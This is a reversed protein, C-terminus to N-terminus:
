VNQEAQARVKGGGLGLAGPGLMYAWTAFDEDTAELGVMQRAEGRNMVGAKFLDNARKALADESEALARVGTTDFRLRVGDDFKAKRLYQENFASEVRNWLGSVTTDYFARKAEEYNSFTSRALGAGMGAVIPPVGLVACIREEPRDSLDDLAMENPKFGSPTVEMKHDTFMLRGRGEGSFMAKVKAEWEAQQEDTMVPAEGGWTVFNSPFPAKMISHTFATIENDTLVERMAAKLPSLGCIPNQPDVGLAIHVMDDVPVMVTGTGTSYRYSLLAGNSDTEVAVASHPIYQVGFVRGSPGRALRLYVNGDTRDSWAIGWMLRALSQEYGAINLVPNTIAKLADHEVQAWGDKDRTEAILPVNTVADTLPQMCAGIVSNMSIAGSNLAASLPGGFVRGTAMMSLTVGKKDGGGLVKRLWNAM